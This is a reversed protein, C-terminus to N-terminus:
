VASSTALMYSAGRKMQITMVAVAILALRLVEQRCLVILTQNRESLISYKRSATEKSRASRESGLGDVEIWVGTSPIYFDCSLRGHVRKHTEHEIQMMYLLNDAIAEILSDCRHGDLAVTRIPGRGVKRRCEVSCYRAGVAIVSPKKM